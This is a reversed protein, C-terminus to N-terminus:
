GCHVDAWQDGVAKSGSPSTVWGSVTVCHGDMGTLSVPGAYEYFYDEQKKFRDGQRISVELLQKQGYYKRAVNVVCNTGGNASSYFLHLTGWVSGDTDKINYTDVESGACGYAGQAAASATPAAVLGLGATAALSVLGILLKRM